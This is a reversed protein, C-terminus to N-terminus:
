FDPLMSKWDGAFLSVSIAVRGNCLGESDRLKLMHLDVVQADDAYVVGTLADLVFKGINDTDPKIAVVTSEMAKLKLNGVQRRKAIFEDDRRRLFCWVKVAVPQFRGFMKFGKAKAEARVYNAFKKKAKKM